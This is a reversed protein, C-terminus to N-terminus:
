QNEVTIAIKILRHEEETAETVKLDYIMIDSNGRAKFFTVFSNLKLLALEIELLDQGNQITKERIEAEGNMRYRLTIDEGQYTEGTIEELEESNFLVYHYHLSLDKLIARSDDTSEAPPHEIDHILEVLYNAFSEVRPLRTIDYEGELDEFSYVFGVENGSAVPAQEIQTQYPKLEWEELRQQHASYNEWFYPIRNLPIIPCPQPLSSNNDKQLSVGTPSRNMGPHFGGYLSITQKNKKGFRIHFGLSISRFAGFITPTQVQQASSSKACCGNTITSLSVGFRNEQFYLSSFFNLEGGEQRLSPGDEISQGPFMFNSRVGFEINQSGQLPFVYKISGTLYALVPAILEEDPRFLEFLAPLQASGLQLDLQKDNNRWRYHLDIGGTLWFAGIRDAGILIPDDRDPIYYQSDNMLKNLKRRSNAVGVKIGISLQHQPHNLLHAAMMALLRSKGFTFFDENEFMAGLGLSRNKHISRSYLIQLSSPDAEEHIPEYQFGLLFQELGNAGTLASNNFHFDYLQYAPSFSLPQATAFALLLM